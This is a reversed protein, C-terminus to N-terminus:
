GSGRKQWRKRSAAVRQQELRQLENLMREIDEATFIRGRGDRKVAPYKVRLFAWRVLKPSIVLIECVDATQCM